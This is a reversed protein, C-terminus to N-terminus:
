LRTFSQELIAEIDALIDGCSDGDVTEEIYENPLKSYLNEFDTLLKQLDADRIKAWDRKSSNNAIKVVIQRM